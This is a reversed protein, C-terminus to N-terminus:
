EALSIAAATAADGFVLEASLFLEHVQPPAALDSDAPFRHADL